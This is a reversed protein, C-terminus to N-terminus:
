AIKSRQIFEVWQSQIANTAAQGIVNWDSPTLLSYLKSKVQPRLTLEAPQLQDEELLATFFAQQEENLQTLQQHIRRRAEIITAETGGGLNAAQMLIELEVFLISQLRVKKMAQKWLEPDVPRPNLSYAPFGAGIAGGCADEAEIMERLFKPDDLRDLLDGTGEYKQRLRQEDM